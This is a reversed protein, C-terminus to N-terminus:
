KKYDIVGLGFNHDFTSNELQVDGGKGYVATGWYIAKNDKFTSNVVKLNGSKQYVGSGNNAMNDYFSCNKITLSRAQSAIAGGDYGNGHTFLINEVSVNAKPNDINLIQNAEQGDICAFPSGVLTINKKICISQSLAYTAPPM